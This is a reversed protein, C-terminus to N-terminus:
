VVTTRLKLGLVSFLYLCELQLDQDWVLTRCLIRASQGQDLQNQM